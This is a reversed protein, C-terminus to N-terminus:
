RVNGLCRARLGDSGPQEHVVPTAAVDSPFELGRADARAQRQPAADIAAEDGHTRGSPVNTEIHEIAKEASSGDAADDAGVGQLELAPLPQVGLVGLLEARLRGLSAPLPEPSQSGPVPSRARDAETKM